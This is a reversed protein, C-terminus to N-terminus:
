EIELEGIFERIVSNKPIVADDPEPTVPELLNHVRSARTYADQRLPDDKYKEVWEVFGDFLKTKYLPLEYPMASNIIFDATRSYPIINRMEGSRVYHWHTLTREYDYSRHMADRLMRRMLRIDTWRAYIGDNGKVQMLPEIYLNIKNDAIGDTLPPYLGYLSDILVIDSEALKM